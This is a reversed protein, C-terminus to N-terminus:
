QHLVQRGRLNQKPLLRKPMGLARLWRHVAYPDRITLRALVAILFVTVLLAYVVLLWNQLTFAFPVLVLSPLLTLIFLDRPIGFHTVVRVTSPHFPEAPM